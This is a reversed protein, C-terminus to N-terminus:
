CPKARPAAAFIAWVFLWSLNSCATGHCGYIRAIWTAVTSLVEIATLFHQIIIPAYALKIVSGMIEFHRSAWLRRLLWGPTYRGQAVSVWYISTFVLGSQAAM